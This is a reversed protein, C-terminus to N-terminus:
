LIGARIKVMNENLKPDFILNIETKFLIDFDIMMM